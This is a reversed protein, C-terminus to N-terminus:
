KRDYKYRKDSQAFIKDLKLLNENFIKFISSWESLARFQEGSESDIVSDSDQYIVDHKFVQIRMLLGRGCVANTDLLDTGSLLM